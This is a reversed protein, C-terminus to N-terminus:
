DPSPYGNELLYLFIRSSFHFKFNIRSRCCIHAFCLGSLKRENANRRFFFLSALLKNICVKYFLFDYHRMLRNGEEWKRRVGTFWFQGGSSTGDPVVDVIRDLVDLTKRCALNNSFLPSRILRGRM